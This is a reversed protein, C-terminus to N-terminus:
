CIKLGIKKTRGEEFELKDERALWCVAQLVLDRPAAAEKILKTMSLPGQAALVKWVVGATHGIADVGSPADAVAM